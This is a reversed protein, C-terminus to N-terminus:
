YIANTPITNCDAFTANYTDVFPVNDQMTKQKMLNNQFWCPNCQITNYPMTNCDVFPVNCQMAILLPQLLLILILLIILTPWEALAVSNATTCCWLWFLTKVCSFSFIFIASCIKPNFPEIQFNEMPKEGAGLRWTSCVLNQTVEWFDM